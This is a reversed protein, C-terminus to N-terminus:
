HLIPLISSHDDTWLLPERGAPLASPLRAIAPRELFRSNTSLLMWISALHGEKPDMAKVPVLVAQWGDRAALARVVPELDLHSNSIHFAMVGDPKMHKRYIQMAEDTLLHMPISDGSFADLVLLDFSQPPEQLLSLRGDGPM